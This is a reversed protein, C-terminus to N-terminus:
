NAAGDDQTDPQNLSPVHAFLQMQHIAIENLRTLRQEKTFGQRIFEANLNELNALVLLQETTANDRANGKATPNALQWEKATMGFLALNLLDAETAFYLGELKTGALRPPILHQKVADTHVLYNLKSLTRHLNWELLDKTRSAEEQKLRQFEKFVYLKFTPSLYSLFEFAIDKHAFTGGYRGAKARIGIAATAQVWDTVTLVFTASGTQNRIGEFNLPNFDKNHLTEWAGLFDVTNRTRLWNLIVQDTRENFKRAIDTLSIFDEEKETYFRIQIDEVSIVASSKAM